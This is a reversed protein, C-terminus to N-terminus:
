IKLLNVSLSEAQIYIEEFNHTEIKEVVAKPSLYSKYYNFVEIRMHEVKEKPLAFIGQMLEDLEELHKFVFANKEHILLPSMLRAYESHIIPICGCAMAETLNHSQPIVIGPLALYFNFNRLINPLAKLDIRFTELTNLIIVKRDKTSAIFDNLENNSNVKFNYDQKALYDAIQMRSPQNFYKSNAIKNYYEPDINGSFFASNKRRKNEIGLELLQYNQYYWPYCSMPVHYSNEPFSSSFYNNSLQTNNIVINAKEKSPKGFKVINDKILWSAYKNEGQTKSLVDIVKANKPLYVTYGALAFMKLLSYLYRNIAVASVDIFLIKGKVPVQKSKYLIELYKIFRTSKKKFKYFFM